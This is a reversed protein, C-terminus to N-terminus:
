SRRGGLDAFYFIQDIYMNTDNDWGNPTADGIIGIDSVVDFSYEGTATNLTVMYDGAFVPINDGDQAGVGAPFDASGWNVAWDDDQRFKAAGDFLTLSITWVDPNMADQTMDTDEDWGGPTSDGIIGVSQASLGFCILLSFFTLLLNSKM